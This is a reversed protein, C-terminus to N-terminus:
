REWETWSFEGFILFEFDLLHLAMMPLDLLRTPYNPVVTVRRKTQIMQALWAKVQAVKGSNFTAPSRKIRFRMRRFEAGDAQKRGEAFSFIAMCVSQVM